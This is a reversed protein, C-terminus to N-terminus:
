AVGLLEEYLALYSRAMVDSTFRDLYRRYGTEALEQREDAHGLYHVIQGALEKPQSPEVLVGSLGHEVIEQLGGVRSAIVLRRAGMAEVAVLGFPESLSPVIVIDVQRLLGAVDEVHGVFLVTNTLKRTTVERRLKSELPGSGAFALTTEPFCKIVIEIADLAVLHGKEPRLRGLLLVRAGDGPLSPAGHGATESELEIGNHVFTIKKEGM